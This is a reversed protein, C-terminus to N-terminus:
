ENVSLQASCMDRIQNLVTDVEEDDVTKDGLMIAQMAESSFRKGSAEIICRCFANYMARTPKKEGAALYISIVHEYQRLCSENMRNCFVEKVEMPKEDTESSVGDTESQSQSQAQVLLSCGMLLLACLRKKYMVMKWQNIM